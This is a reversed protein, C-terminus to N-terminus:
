GLMSRYMIIMSQLVPIKYFDKDNLLYTSEVAQDATDIAVIELLFGPIGRRQSMFFVKEANGPEIERLNVVGG